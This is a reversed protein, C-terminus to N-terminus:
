LCPVRKNCVACPVHTSSLCMVNWWCCRLWPLLHVLSHPVQSSACWPHCAVFGPYALLCCDANRSCQQACWRHWECFLLWLLWLLLLLSLSSSLSSSLLLRLM